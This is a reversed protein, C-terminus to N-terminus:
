QLTLFNRQYLDLACTSRLSKLLDYTFDAWIVIAYIIPMLKAIRLMIYSWTSEIIITPDLHSMINRRADAGAEVVRVAEVVALQTAHPVISIV